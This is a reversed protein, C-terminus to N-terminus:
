LIVPIEKQPRKIKSLYKKILVIEFDSLINKIHNLHDSGPNVSYYFVDQLLRWNWLLEKDSINKVIKELGYLKQLLRKDYGKDWQMPDKIGMSSERQESTTTEILEELLEFQSTSKFFSYDFPSLHQRSCPLVGSCIGQAPTKAFLKGIIYDHEEVQAKYENLSFYESCSNFYPTRVISANKNSALERLSELADARLDKLLEIAVGSISLKIKLKRTSLKKSLFENLPILSNEVFENVSKKTQEDDFYYHDADIQNVSYSKLLHPHHLKFHICM